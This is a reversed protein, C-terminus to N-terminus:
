AEYNRRGPRHGSRSYKVAHPIFVGTGNGNRWLNVLWTPVLKSDAAEDERWSFYSGPEAAVGFAARSGNVGRKRAAISISNLNTSFENEDDETLLLIQRRLEAYFADDEDFDEYEVSNDMNVAMNAQSMYSFLQTELM